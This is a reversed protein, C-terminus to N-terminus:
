DLNNDGERKFRGQRGKIKMNEGKDGSMSFDMGLPHVTLLLGELFHPKLMM